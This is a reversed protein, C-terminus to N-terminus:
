KQGVTSGKSGSRGSHLPTGESCDVADRRGSSRSGTPIGIFGVVGHVQHM